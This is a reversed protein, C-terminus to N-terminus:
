IKHDAAIEILDGFVNGLSRRYAWLLGCGFYRGDKAQNANQGTSNCSFDKPLRPCGRGLLM